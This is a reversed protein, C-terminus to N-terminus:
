QPHRQFHLVFHCIYRLTNHSHYLEIHITHHHSQVSHSIFLYLFFGSECDANSPKSNNSNSHPQWQIRHTPTMWRVCMARCVLSCKNRKCWDIAASNRHLPRRKAPMGNMKYLNDICENVNHQFPTVCECGNNPQEWWFHQVAYVDFSM